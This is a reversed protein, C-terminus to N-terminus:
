AQPILLGPGAGETGRDRTLCWNREEQVGDSNPEPAGSAMKSVNMGQEQLGPGLLWLEELHLNQGHASSIDQVKLGFKM